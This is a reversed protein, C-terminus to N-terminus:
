AFERMCLESSTVVAVKVAKQKAVNKERALAALEKPSHRVFMWSARLLLSEWPLDAKPLNCLVPHLHTMDCPTALLDHSHYLVIAVSSRFSSYALLLNMPHFLLLFPLSFALPFSSPLFSHFLIALSVKQQQNCFRTIPLPCREHCFVEIM